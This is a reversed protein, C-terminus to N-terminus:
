QEITIDLAGESHVRKKVTIALKMSGLLTAFSTSLEVDRLNWKQTLNIGKLM